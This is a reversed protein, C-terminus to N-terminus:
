VGFDPVALTGLFRDILQCAEITGNSVVVEAKPSLSIQARQENSKPLRFACQTNLNVFFPRV